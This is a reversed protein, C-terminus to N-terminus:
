YPSFSSSKRYYQILSYDHKSDLLSHNFLENLKFKDAIQIKSKKNRNSDMILKFELYRKAAPLQFRGALELLVEPALYNIDLSKKHVLSLVTAFHEFNVDQIPFEPSSKESSETEFLTNFYDSHYSLLAKNVHLKKEEVVLVADTKYSQAFTQEYISTTSMKTLLKNLQFKDAIRIKELRDIKTSILFLELHRKVSSILFRDALELLEEANEETPVIPNTQLLSLLTSIKM